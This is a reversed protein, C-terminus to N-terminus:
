KPKEHRHMIELSVLRALTIALYLQGALAQFMVLLRAVPHVPTIDGYGTTTLTIFSFYMFHRLLADPHGATFDEPFRFAQPISLFLLQYLLAWLAGLLLYVVIAGSIRHLTVPGARFVQLVLTALLLGVYMLSLSANLMALSRGPRIEEVVNVTLIVVALVIAVTHVWKRKFTTLVGAVVILSFFLRTVVSGFSFDSLTMLVILYVLTSFLLATLGSETSWFHRPHLNALNLRQNKL